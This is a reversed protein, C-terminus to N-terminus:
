GINITSKKYVVNYNPRTQIMESLRQSNIITNLANLNFTVISISYYTGYQFKKTQQVKEKKEMGIERAKWSFYSM